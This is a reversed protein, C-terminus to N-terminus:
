RLNKVIKCPNVRVSLISENLQEAFSRDVSNLLNTWWGFGGNKSIKIIVLITVCPTSGNIEYSKNQSIWVVICTGSNVLFKEFKNLLINLLINHKLNM